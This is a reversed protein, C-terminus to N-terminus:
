PYYPFKSFLDWITNWLLFQRKKEKKKVFMFAHNQNMWFTYKKKIEEKSSKM